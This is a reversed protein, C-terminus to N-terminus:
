WRSPCHGPSMAVGPVAFREWSCRSESAAAFDDLAKEVSAEDVCCWCQSPSMDADEVVDTGIANM